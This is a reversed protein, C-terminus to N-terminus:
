DVTVSWARIGALNGACSGYATRLALVYGLMLLDRARQTEPAQDPLAPADPMPECTLLEPPPTAIRVREPTCASVNLLTFAAGVICLAKQTYDM